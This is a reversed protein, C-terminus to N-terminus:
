QHLELKFAGFIHVYPRELDILAREAISASKATVKWLLLTSVSLVVTFLATIGGGHDDFFRSIQRWVVFAVNYTACYKAGTIPNEDCVETYAPSFYSIEAGAILLLGLVVGFVRLLRTLM